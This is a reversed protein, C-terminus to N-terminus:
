EQDKNKGPIKRSDQLPALAIKVFCENALRDTTKHVSGGMDSGHIVIEVGEGNIKQGPEKKKRSAKNIAEGSPHYILSFFKKKKKEPENHNEDEEGERPSLSAEIKKREIRSGRDNNSLEPIVKDRRRRFM